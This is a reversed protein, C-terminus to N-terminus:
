LKHNNVVGLHWHAEPIYVLNCRFTPIFKPETPGRSLYVETADLITPKAKGKGVATRVCSTYADHVGALQRQLIPTLIVSRFAAPDVTSDMLEDAFLDLVQQAYTQRRRAKHSNHMQGHLEEDVLQCVIRDYPAPLEYTNYHIKFLGKGRLKRSRGFEITRTEGKKWRM